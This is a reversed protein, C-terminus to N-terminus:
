AAELPEAVEPRRASVHRSGCARCCGLDRDMERVSGCAKCWGKLVESARKWILIGM